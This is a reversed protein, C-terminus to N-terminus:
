LEVCLTARQNKGSQTLSNNKVNFEVTFREDLGLQEFVHRAVSPLSGTIEREFAPFATWDLIYFIACDDPRPHITYTYEHGVSTEAHRRSELRLLM